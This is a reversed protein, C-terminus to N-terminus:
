NGSICFWGPPLSPPSGETALSVPGKRVFGEGGWGRRLHGILAVKNATAPPTHAHRRTRQPGLRGLSPATGTDTTTSLGHDETPSPKPGTRPFSPSGTSSSSGSPRLGRGQDVDELPLCQHTWRDGAEQHAEFKHDSESPRNPTSKVPATCSGCSAFAGAACARLASVAAERVRPAPGSLLAPRPSAPSLRHAGGPEGAGASTGVTEQGGLGPLVGGTGESSSSICQSLGPSLACLDCASATFTM